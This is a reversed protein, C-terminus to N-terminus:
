PTAAEERREERRERIREVAADPNVDVDVGGGPQVDVRVPEDAPSTPADTNIDVGEGPQVDVDIGDHSTPPAGVTTDTRGDSDVYPECGM